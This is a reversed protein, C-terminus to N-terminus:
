RSYVTTWDRDLDAQTPDFDPDVFYFSRVGPKIIGFRISGTNIIIRLKVEAMYCRLTVQCDGAIVFPDEGNGEHMVNEVKPGFWADKDYSVREYRIARPVSAWSWSPGPLRATNLKSGGSKWYWLM